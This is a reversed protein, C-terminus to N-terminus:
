GLRCQIAVDRRKKCKPCFFVSKTLKNTILISRSSGDKHGCVTCKMRYRAYMGDQGVIDAGKVATASGKKAVAPQAPKAQYHEAPALVPQSEEAAPSAFLNKIRSAQVGQEVGGKWVTDTPLIVGSAAFEKLQEGSFPGLKDNDHAFYWGGAM